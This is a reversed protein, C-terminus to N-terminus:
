ALMKVCVPTPVEIEEGTPTLEGSDADISFVVINSTDQNAVLAYRGSPDLAFGRPCEGGAPVRSVFALEGTEDDVAFVVISDDGRNSGYLFRGTPHVHIDATHNRGDFANPLTSVTQFETMAGKEADYRYAVITSDLENIVFVFRQSPHFAIHRPGAGSKARAWPQDSNPTLAGEQANYRYIMVKDTGLDAALAFRNAADLVISHAHPADQRQPNVSSGEHQVFATANRLSRDAQIPLVSVSGGGYNAVLVNAGTNDITIYAPGPGRTSRRNLVTAEVGDADLSFATVSGAPRGEFEGIESIAYVATGDPHVAVYSPNEIGAIVRETALRGSEADFRLLHIGTSRGDVHPERRTYTGVFVRMDSSQTEAM